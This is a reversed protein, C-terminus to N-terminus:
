DESQKQKKEVHEADAPDVKPPSPLEKAVAKAEAELKAETETTKVSKSADGGEPLPPFFLPLAEDYADVDKKEFTVIVVKDLKEGDKGELFKRIASLAAPAAAKSPYGYIGTSLASFAVTRCDNAVALELSKTYCGTLETECKESNYDDYIPGVAHIVKRCPLNYAGTIKASGTPCGGLTRCEALLRPGASRHIAGDVGGGGLLSNNAANVIADVALRTIDGRYLCVRDNLAKSPSPLQSPGLLTMPPKSTPLPGILRTVKYLLTLNPIEAARTNM